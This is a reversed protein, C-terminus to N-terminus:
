EQGDSGLKEQIKDILLKHREAILPQLKEDESLVQFIMVIAKDINMRSGSEEGSLQRIRKDAAIYSHVGGEFSRIKMGRVSKFIKSRIEKLEGLAQLRDSLVDQDSQKQIDKRIAELRTEWNDWQAWKAITQRRMRQCQKPFKKRLELATDEYSTLAAYIKFAAERMKAPYAM